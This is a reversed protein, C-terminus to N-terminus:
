ILTQPNLPGSILHKPMRTQCRGEDGSGGCWWGRKVWTDM